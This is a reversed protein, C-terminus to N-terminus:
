DAGKLGAKHDEDNDLLWFGAVFVILLGIATVGGIFFDANTNADVFGMALAAVFPALIMIGGLYQRASM